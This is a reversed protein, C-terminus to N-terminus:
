YKSMTTEDFIKDRVQVRGGDSYKGEDPPDPPPQLGLSVKGESIKELLRIANKYRTERTEPIDEKYRSYLNFIGIDANLKGLIAPVAGTIPLKVRGGIYTDIEESASDIAEQVWAENIVGTGEDDTLRILIDEPIMKEIDDITCYAM